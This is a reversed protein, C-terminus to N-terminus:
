NKFWNMGMKKLSFAKVRYKISSISAMIKVIMARLLTPLNSSNTTPHFWARMVRPLYM